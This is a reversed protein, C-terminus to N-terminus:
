PRVKAHVDLYALFSRTEARNVDLELKLEATPMGIRQEDEIRVILLRRARHLRMLLDNYVCRKELTSSESEDRM